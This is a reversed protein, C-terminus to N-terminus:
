NTLLGAVYGIAPGGVARITQHYCTLLWDSTEAADKASSAISFIKKLTAGVKIAAAAVDPNAQADLGRELLLYATIVDRLSQVSYGWGFWEMRDLRFYFHELGEILNQRIFDKESLQAERLWELLQQVMEKLDNTEDPTLKPYSYKEPLAASFTRIPSSHEPSLRLRGVQSWQSTLAAKSFAERIHTLHTAIGTKVLSNANSSLVISELAVTRSLITHIVQFFEPSWAPVQFRGALYADGQENTQTSLRDCV